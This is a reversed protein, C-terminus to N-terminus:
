KLKDGVKRKDLEFYVKLNWSGVLSNEFELQETM